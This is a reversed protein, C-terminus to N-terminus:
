FFPRAASHALYTDFKSVREKNLRSLLRYIDNFLSTKYIDRIKARGSGDLLDVETTFNGDEDTPLHMAHAQLTDFFHKM